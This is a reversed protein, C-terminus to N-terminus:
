SVRNLSWDYRLYRLSFREGADANERLWSKVDGGDFDEPFWDFIKSAYIKSNDRRLGKSSNGLTARVQDDLQMDLEVARYPETRLDPCSVSACNVAFHIRPDGLSRLINHEIFDLTYSLSAVPWDFKTWPRSFLGGLNRISEREGERM